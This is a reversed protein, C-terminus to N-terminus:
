EGKQWNMAKYMGYSVGLERAKRADDSILKANDEKKRENKKTPSYNRCRIKHLERSCEESCTKKRTMTTEFTKGCTECKKVQMKGKRKEKKKKRRYVIRCQESCTIHVKTKTEFNNGCTVCERTMIEGGKSEM